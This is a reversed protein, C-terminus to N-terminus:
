DARVNMMLTKLLKMAAADRSRASALWTRKREYAEEMRDEWPDTLELLVVDPRLTTVAITEPFKLQKGVDVKLQWDPATVFKSQKVDSM